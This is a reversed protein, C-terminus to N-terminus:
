SAAAPRGSVSAGRVLVWSLLGLYVLGGLLHGSTAFQMYPPRYWGPAVQVGIVPASVLLVGAWFAAKLPWGRLWERGRLLGAIPLLLWTYYHSWSIPSTVCILVVVLMFELQLTTPVVGPAPRRVMGSLLVAAVVLAVAAVLLRAWLAYPAEFAAPAWDYLGNAGVQFRLVFAQLSQVNFAPVPHSSYPEICLEYWRHHLDMGFVAVSLAVACALVIAGGAAVGWRRRLLFYAGLLVLPPKILAAVGLIAGAAFDRGGRAAALGLVLLLLIFHSTNGEKMGYMLPGNAAILFLLVAAQRGDLGFERVLLRWSWFVCAAGLASFLIMAPVSGLLGFPWFLYAVIPLNVFGDTGREILPALGAPGNQLAVGAAYYADQFDQMVVPPSEAVFLSFGAMLVALGFALPRASPKEGDTRLLHQLLLLGFALALLHISGSLTVHSMM